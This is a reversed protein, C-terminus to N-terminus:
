PLALFASMLCLLLEVHSHINMKAYLRQVHSHVTDPSCGLEAAIASKKQGDFIRRVIELERPSLRFTPGLEM